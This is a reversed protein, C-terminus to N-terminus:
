VLFAVGVAVLWLSWLVYAVPTLRGALKWGSPEFGGLFEACSILFLPGVVVGILGLWGPAADSEILAVGTLISWAGTLAYGLHEGVAVGLYRNFSQFVVDVTERRAPEADPEAAVRALYPVLFPWRVLGLFQVASALV